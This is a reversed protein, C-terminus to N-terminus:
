SYLNIKNHNTKAKRPARAARTLTRSRSCKKHPKPAECRATYACSGESSVSHLFRTHTHIPETELPECRKAGAKEIKPTFLPARKPNVLGGGQKRTTSTYTYQVTSIMRNGKCFCGGGWFFLMFFAEGGGEGVKIFLHPPTM